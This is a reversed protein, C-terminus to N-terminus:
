EKSDIKKIECSTNSDHALIDIYACVRDKQTSNLKIADYSHFRWFDHHQSRHSGCETSSLRWCFNTTVTKKYWTQKCERNTYSFTEPRDRKELPKDIYMLLNSSEIKGLLAFYLTLEHNMSRTIQKTKVIWITTKKIYLRAPYRIGSDDNFRYPVLNRKNPDLLGWLFQMTEWMPFHRSSWSLVQNLAIVIGSQTTLDQIYFPTIIKGDWCDFGCSERFLGSGFSKNTNVVLGARSLVSLTNHYVSRRVIIDDGFIAADKWAIYGGKFRDNSAYVLACCVLTLLPFTFGCGMTSASNLKITAGDITVFPSRIASVVEFITTPLILELLEMTIFDSASSLDISCFPDLFQEAFKSGRLVFMRNKEQQTSIDLGVARLCESLFKGFALQFWLNISPEAAIVRDFENDKPVTTIRSGAVVSIESSHKGIYQYMDPYFIKLYILLPICGKTVTLNKNCLKDIIHSDGPVVSSGKGWDIFAPHRFIEPNFDQQPWHEMNHQVSIMKCGTELTKSIFERANSIEEDTLSIHIDGARSNCDIFKDLARRRTLENSSTTFRKSYRARLRTAAPSFRGALDNEIAQALLTYM